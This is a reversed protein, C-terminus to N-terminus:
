YMRSSTITIDAWKWAKKFQDYVKGAEDNKGQGKLSNYLGRLAWGNNPFTSLDEKYIIEAEKFSGAQVLVHGLTHRVSFFWDPPENYNLNDEKEIAKKLIEVARDYEKKHAAIEGELTFAAIHVLDQASNLDWILSSKLSEDEAIRNIIALENEAAEINGQGSFAMGRAYHWIAVPYKLEGPKQLKLIEEWKALNVLTYYPIVFFHQVTVSEHLYKRDANASVKWSAEIAKKSNGELFACAALFHINHPYYLMPYAGQVKCQTIYTSDAVAAKENVLVGKHYEGTRIYTHSPMHVLHGASPMADVLKDAYPLAKQVNKSAETAHIYYHIAGPHTPSQKLTSELHSIIEPTWPQPTGDKLWLNWPHLNMLADAYLTAIEIDTPFQDYAKKMRAAYAEYYPTMDKVEQRPFRKSIADILVRENEKVQHRYKIANDIAFNIDTLSTPNLAANYNPGLVLALGWYAMACTSDLSIATKFSRAAEGHNFGYTLALGQNFYKQAMQSRTTISYRITGLGKLLPAKKNLNLTDFSPACYIINSNSFRMVKENSMEKKHGTFAGIIFLVFLLLFLRM